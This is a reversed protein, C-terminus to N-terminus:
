FNLDVRATVYRLPPQTYYDYTQFNSAAGFGNVEPDFGSYGTWTKLNRGSFTLRLDSVGMRRNLSAPALLSVSLERLKVFDSDEIYVSTNEASSLFYFAIIGAQDVLNTRERVFQAECLAEWSCRDFRTFNMQQFGGRYDLLGSIRVSNFLTLNSSFSAQREPFPSGLYVATDGLSVESFQLLGDGNADEYIVPRGWYGGLPRGPVHRQQVRISGFIIPEVGEALEELRNRTRSGSLTVDWQVRSRDLVRSNILAEVGRNSVSGVNDWQSVTLGLSPALRRQVLADHSLRDYYTLEFGVRERLVDLDFGLEIERSIEPRLRPNGAGSLSVAPVEAGAVRVAEPGYFRIADRFSPRLGSRGYAARLRLSGILETAPFFPEESVVWSSSVSPYWVYGAENGFASNNDGRLAGTIYVRDNLGVQQQAYLGLTRNEFTNENVTFLRSVGKLSTTGPALGRGFARTDYYDEAQYQAGVSSTSVINERVPLTATADITATMNRVDVRNSTRYGLPILGSFVPSVRNAEVTEGDHRTVQDIGGTAILSLWRSPRFDANMSATFRSVDQTSVFAETEEPPIGYTGRDVTSDASGLLGNLLYGYLNNDNPPLQLESRVYGSRWSLNLRDSVRSTLNARLSYRSGHNPRYVGQEDDVDGSLFYTVQETGGSVNLGLQRRHGTIFPSFGPEELPNFSRVTGNDLCDGEAVEFMYCDARFSAPYTTVDRVDTYGTYMSWRAAGARGRKTTIQIVGNAAATGYMAAAAPGKLIEINEIDEPNIDNLRSAVQWSGVTTNDNATIRVGDIVVLPENSLSISNSGRIRIRSATGVEGSNMTVNVGASRGQLLASMSPVAAMEVDAVNINGVANGMERQRQERGTATVTVAGLELVSSALVFNATATGGPELEVTITRTAFGLRSASLQVAGARVAALRYTGDQGSIARGAGNLVSVQVGAVPDQQTDTVRGTITGTGQAAAQCPLALLSLAWVWRHGWM